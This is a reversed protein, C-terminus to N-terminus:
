RLLVLSLKLIKQAHDLDPFINIQLSFHLAERREDRERVKGGKEEIREKEIKEREEGKEERRKEAGKGEKREEERSEKSKM